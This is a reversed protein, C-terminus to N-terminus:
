LAKYYRVLPLATFGVKEYARRAPAHSADGGTAVEVLAIGNEKMRSLVEDYLKHGIGKNQYDPDVCNLGLEGSKKEMNTSFLVYGVVTGDEDAVLFNEKEDTSLSSLYERYGARWDPYILNFIDDGLLGQFSEHIPTFARLTIELITEFDAEHFQRIKM